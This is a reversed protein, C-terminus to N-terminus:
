SAAQPVPEAATLFGAIEALAAAARDRHGANMPHRSYRAEALRM